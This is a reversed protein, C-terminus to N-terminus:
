QKDLLVCFESMGNLVRNKQIGHLSM